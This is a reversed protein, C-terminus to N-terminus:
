HLRQTKWCPLVRSDLLLVGDRSSSVRSECVPNLLSLLQSLPLTPCTTTATLFPLRAERIELRTATASECPLARLSDVMQCLIDFISM